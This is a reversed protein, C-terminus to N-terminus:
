RGEAGDEDGVLRLCEFPAHVIRVRFRHSSSGISAAAHPVSALWVPSPTTPLTNASSAARRDQSSGVPVFVAFPLHRFGM